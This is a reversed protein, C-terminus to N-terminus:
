NKRALQQFIRVAESAAWDRPGIIKEVITGNKDIIYSEPIGTTQYKYKLTGKPDLLVTFNLKYKKMFPAVTEAGAADVSVALIDFDEGKMTQYLKEMSPMEAVCPKCWTAWINLLVAKGRYDGLSVSKGNLDPLTFNPAAVGKGLIAKGSLNLYDDKTQLLIIIAIGLLVMLVFVISKPNMKRINANSELM